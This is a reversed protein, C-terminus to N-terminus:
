AKVCSRFEIATCSWVTKDERKGIHKRAAAAVRWLPMLEAPDQPSASPYVEWKLTNCSRDSSRHLMRTNTSRQFLRGMVFRLPPCVGPDATNHLRVFYTAEGIRPAVEGRCGHIPLVFLTGDRLISRTYETGIIITGRHPVQARTHQWARVEGHEFAEDWAAALDRDPVSGAYIDHICQLLQGQLANWLGSPEANSGPGFETGEGLCRGDQLSAVVDVRDSM